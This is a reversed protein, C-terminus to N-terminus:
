ESLLPVIRLKWIHLEDYYSVLNCVGSISFKIHADALLKCSIYCLFM